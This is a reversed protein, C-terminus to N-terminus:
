DLTSSFREFLERGFANWEALHGPIGEDIASADATRAPVAARLEATWEALIAADVEPHFQVGWGNGRRFAQVCVPSRALAQAGAPLEVAYSHWQMATVRAPAFALLPDSAAAPLLEVELWGLERTPAPVVAGGAAQALLQAGLCVGLLPRGCELWRELLELERALYPFREQECVNQDGGLVVLGAYEPLPRPPEPELAPTWEDIVCGADGAGLRFVGSRGGGPHCISLVRKV